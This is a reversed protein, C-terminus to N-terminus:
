SDIREYTLQLDNEWPGGDRPRDGRCAVVSEAVRIFVDGRAWTRPSFFASDIRECGAAPPLRTSRNRATKPALDLARM